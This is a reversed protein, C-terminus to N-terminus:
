NILLNYITIEFLLQFIYHSIYIYIYTIIFKISILNKYNEM